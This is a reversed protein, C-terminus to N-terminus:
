RTIKGMPRAPENGCLALAETGWELGWPHNVESLLQIGARGPLYSSDRKEAPCPALVPNSKDVVLCAKGLRVPSSPRAPVQEASAHISQRPRWGEERWSPGTQSKPLGEEVGFLHLAPATAWGTGGWASGSPCLLCCWSCVREWKGEALMSNAVHADEHPPSTVLKTPAKCARGPGQKVVVAQGASTVGQHDGWGHPLSEPSAGAGLIASM